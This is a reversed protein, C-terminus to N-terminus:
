PEAFVKADLKEQPRIDTFHVEVYRKGAHDIRLKTAFRVGGFEKYDSYFIEQPMEANSGDKVNKVTMQSKVLLHTKKDFYLSVDRHDAHSVRVGAAEQGGVKAAALPALKFGKGKLPILTAVWNCYMREREEAVMDKPMPNAKDENLKEWGKAGNIVTTATFTQDKVKLVVRMRMQDAGQADWQGTLDIGEDGMGYFKGTGKMVVANYRALKGEGGQAELAKNVLGRAAANDGSWLRGSAALLLGLASVACWMKRM